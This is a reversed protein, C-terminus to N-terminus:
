PSNPRRGRHFERLQNLQEESLIPKLKVEFSDILTKVQIGTQEQLSDIKDMTEELLPRMQRAQDPNADAVELIRQIFAERGEYKWSQPQKRVERGVLSVSLAGLLVGIVLTISIILLARKRETTM